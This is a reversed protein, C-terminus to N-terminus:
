ALMERAHRLAEALRDVDEVTNYFAMSARTTAPVGYFDMLPMACHHGTRVAVGRQDLITGIDHAHLGDMVFSIVAAKHPALGVIRLGPLEGLRATAYELLAQEHDLAARRDLRDLYDIAAALGVAGAIHQTGAEFRWPASAYLTREFSVRRIM